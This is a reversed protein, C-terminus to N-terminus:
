REGKAVFLAPGKTNAQTPLPHAQVKTFKQEKLLGTIDELEFGMTDQRMRHAFTQDDHTLIDVIILRGGPKLIRAAERMAKAPEPLYSMVLVIMAADVMGDHIPLHNLDGKRLIVNPNHTTLTEAATLMESSNDVAIVRAVYPAISSALQGTGCGLDAVVMSSNLLSMMAAENFTNGFYEERLQDWESATGSFFTQTGRARQTLKDQLRMDDQTITPWDATQERTLQWLYRAGSELEDVPMRYLHARGQRRSRVWQDSALVKLHRSVTSQPLQVIDCLELVGLEHNELLYLLRIRIPEALSGMWSLLAGPQKSKAAM